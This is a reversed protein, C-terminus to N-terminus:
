FEGPSTRYVQPQWQYKTTPYKTYTPDTYEDCLTQKHTMHHTTWMHNFLPICHSHISTAKPIAHHSTSQSTSHHSCQMKINLQAKLSLLKDSKQQDQHGLIHIYKIILAPLAQHLLHIAHYIGYEDFLTHNPNVPQHQYNNIRM